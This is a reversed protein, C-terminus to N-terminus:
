IYIFVTKLAKGQREPYFGSSRGECAYHTHLLVYILDIVLGYKKIYNNLFLFLISNM